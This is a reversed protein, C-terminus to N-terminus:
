PATSTKKAISLRAKAKLLSIFNGVRMFKDMEDKEVSSILGSSNREALENMRAVAKPTFRLALIARAGEPEFVGGEPAVMEDLIDAETIAREM